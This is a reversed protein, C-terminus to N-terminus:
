LIKLAVLILGQVSDSLGADVICMETNPISPLTNEKQQSYCRGSFFFLISM